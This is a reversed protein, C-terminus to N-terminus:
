GTTESTARGCLDAAKHDGTLEEATFGYPQMVKLLRGNRRYEALKGNWARVLDTDQNRFAFAGCGGPPFPKTVEYGAADKNKARLDALSVRTLAIADIDGGELAQFASPQDPYMSIQSKRAGMAEAQAAEAAGTLVGLRRDPQRAIDAFGRLGHPNGRSVLFATQACYDPNAFTVLACREPTIFMGAAITDCRAAILGAILEAFDLQVGRIEAIGLDRFITRALAATGGDLEGRKNTYAYPSENAFGVEIFGQQRARDLTGGGVSEREVDVTSCATLLGPAAGAALASTGALRLFGRRNM